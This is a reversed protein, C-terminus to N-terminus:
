EKRKSINRSLKCGKFDRIKNLDISFDFSVSGDKPTNLYDNIYKKSINSMDYIRNPKEIGLVLPNIYRTKTKININYCSKNVKDDSLVYTANQFNQFAEVIYPNDCNLINKIMERDDYKYLDDITIYKKEIMISLIDSIFQMTIRNEPKIWDQWLNNAYCIFSDCIQAKQFALECIGDENKCILLNDYVKKIKELNFIRHYALGSSFTYELRDASLKPTENDAIPYKKYNDVDAVSINDRKLLEMIESSELIIQTTREETSEQLETDGNLFDVCHKFAPTAIDHFLGALTQKKDKTFHWIILAVGISHDLVSYFYNVNFLNSYDCGCNVSIGALRQMEFSNIYENLWDPFEKSLISYYGKIERNM